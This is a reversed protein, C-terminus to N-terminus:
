RLKIDKSVLFVAAALIAGEAFKAMPVSLLGLLGSMHIVGRDEDKSLESLIEAKRRIDIPAKCIMNLINHKSLGDFHETLYEAMEKSDFLENVLDCLKM